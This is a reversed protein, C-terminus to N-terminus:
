KHTISFSLPITMAFKGHCSGLQKIVAANCWRFFFEQKHLLRVGPSILLKQITHGEGLMGPYCTSSPLLQRIATFDKVMKALLGVASCNVLNDGVM